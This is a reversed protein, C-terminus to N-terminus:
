EREDKETIDRKAKCVGLDIQFSAPRTKKEPRANRDNKEQKGGNM